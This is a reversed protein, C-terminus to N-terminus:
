IWAWVGEIHLPPSARTLWSVVRYRDFQQRLIEALGPGTELPVGRERLLRALRELLVVLLGALAIRDQGLSLSPPPLGSPDIRVCFRGLAQPEALRGVWRLWRGVTRRDCQCRGAVSTLTAEPSAALEAVASAAVALTFTRHPHGQPEYITWSGCECARDPCRFRLRVVGERRSIDGDPELGM